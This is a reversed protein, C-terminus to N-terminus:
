VTKGRNRVNWWVRWRMRNWYIFLFREVRVNSRIGPVRRFLGWGGFLFLSLKFFFFFFNLANSRCRCVICEGSRAFGDRSSQMESSFSVCLPDTERGDLHRSFGRRPRVRYSPTKWVGPPRQAVCSLLYTCGGHMKQCAFAVRHQVAEVVRSIVREGSTCKASKGSASDFFLMRVHM